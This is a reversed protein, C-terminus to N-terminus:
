QTNSPPVELYPKFIKYLFNIVRYKSALAESKKKKMKTMTTWEMVATANPNKTPDITGEALTPSIMAGSQITM